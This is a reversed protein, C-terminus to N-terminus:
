PRSKKMTIPLLEGPGVNDYEGTLSGGDSSLELELSWTGSFMGVRIPIISTLRLKNDKLLEGLLATRGVPVEQTGGEGKLLVAGIVGGNSTITLPGGLQLSGVAVWEGVIGQEVRAREAALRAKEARVTTGPLPDVVFAGTTTIYGEKGLATVRALGNQFVEASDFQPSIVMKGTLDIFGWGDESMVPALGDSFNGVRLFKADVVVRGKTDIFGVKGGNGFSARGEYFGDGSDYQPNVVFKGKQAIYGTRGGVIVPALGDAFDGAREFQPDIVWKGTADIYGWKGGFAAPALGATFGTILGLSEFKGSLVMKGSRNVFARVGDATTVPAVDGSFWGVWLFDPNSIYKGDKDIFGYRDGAKHPWMPGCCLKVAARGYQFPMADDFQPTIVVVGRTNIYGSKTGVKVRALGESFGSALDFQPTIVTKGSRDMFGYKGNVNIPYLGSNDPKYRGPPRNMWWYGAAAVVVVVAVIAM